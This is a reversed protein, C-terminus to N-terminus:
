QGFSQARCRFNFNQKQMQLNFDGLWASLLCRRWLWHKSPWRLFSLLTVARIPAQFQLRNTPVASLPPPYQNSKRFWCYLLRVFLPLVSFGCHFCRVANKRFFYLRKVGVPLTESPFTMFHSILRINLLMRCAHSLASCQNYRINLFFRTDLLSALQLIRCRNTNYAQKLILLILM